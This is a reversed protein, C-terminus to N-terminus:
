KNGKNPNIKKLASNAIRLYTADVLTKGKAQEAEVRENEQFAIVELAEQAIRLRKILIDATQSQSEIVEELEDVRKSQHYYGEELDKM